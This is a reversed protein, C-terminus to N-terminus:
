LFFPLPELVTSLCHRQRVASTKGPAVDSFRAFEVLQKAQASLGFRLVPCWNSPLCLRQHGLKVDRAANTSVPVAHLKSAAARVAAQISSPISDNDRGM